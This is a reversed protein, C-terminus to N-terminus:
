RIRAFVPALRSPVSTALLHIDDDIAPSAIVARTHHTKESRHRTTRVPDRVHASCSAEIVCYFGNRGKLPTPLGWTDNARFDISSIASSSPM